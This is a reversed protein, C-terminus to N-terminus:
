PQNAPRRGSPSLQPGIRHALDGPDTESRDFPILRFGYRQSTAPITYQEHVPRGWSTDGGVGMQGADLNWTVLDRVVLEAGHRSTMPVLGSASETGRAGPVFDLDEMAFPWLSSSLRPLGVALLGVGSEDTVAIWRVDTKNGTEQPRSYRHFQDDVLGAHRGVWASTKRDAYSEHPGRGFWTVFRFRPPLVLQTGVRPIKPLDNRDLSLQQDVRIQGGASVRYLMEVEGQVAPLRYRVRILIESADSPRASIGLLERGPAADRWAAAWEQMGNGLDNDTPPRWYNPRPGELILSHGRFLYSEVDGTRRSVAIEFEEGRVTIRDPTDVLELPGRAESAAGRPSPEPLAWESPSLEFQEWAIEHGVPLLAEPAVTRASLTLHREGGGRHQGSELDISLEQRERPEIKPTDVVGSAVEVGDELLTWRLEVHDLDRFDYRNVVRFRGAASDVEEFGIPQYVKRVEHLHPHPVRDPDVLGNNLFNGDTPLDPHYDHGYAWYRRGREDIRALSQDVWDWIFGGQLVPHADIAQWYDALNGVSNGMAHAYEIMILPKAPDGEAYEVIHEIPPYMPCYIDTYAAEGAPEYQVPRSPDRQKIWAYTREFIAGEGAENGLSWLVISPHNKDREVMRRTRDLHAPLWSTENGLQTEERIALPHSEINAEDVVYLGYRDTLDYWLPENPYHSSRVANINNEKMLQIDRLMTAEDVVHGTEPHTEHRNVGRLTIARGNVWLQADRIEIRRFGVEDRVVSTVKGSADLLELLLTYLEPTEATWRRVNEIRGQFSLVTRGGAPVSSQRQDVLVPRLERADDLLSARLTAQADDPTHNAIEVELDLLGHQYGDDLTARAFFDATHVPPVAVLYVSREIGSMRLMDQSELYSGDSWRFIRLALTNAGPRVHDTIDFEAPTKAGQSYGVSEGNVWVFMASRVGGFHLWIRSGHWSPDIEFTRRYSGVPNYDQPVRPWESEFPYREDLYIAHGYGQTEWNAPVPIRDWDSLDFSAREFGASADAPRRVWRFDWLGDLSRFWPSSGRDDRLAAARSRYPFWTTHPDIKNIGFVQHNEWENASPQHSGSHAAAVLPLALLGAVLALQTRM